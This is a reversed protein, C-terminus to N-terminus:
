KPTAMYIADISNIPIKDRTITVYLTKDVNKAPLVLRLKPAKPAACNKM